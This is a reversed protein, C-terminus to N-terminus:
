IAPARSVVWPVGHPQAIESILAYRDVPKLRQKLKQRIDAPKIAHPWLRSRAPRQEMHLVVRLKKAETSLTALRREDEDEADVRAPLLAALTDFVKRAVVDALGSPPEVSPHNYDKVEILWVTRDPGVAIVDVATAGKWAAEWRTRYFTWDDYKGVTWLDPFTFLLGDVDLQPMM